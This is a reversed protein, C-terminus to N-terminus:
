LLYFYSGTNEDVAINDLDVRKWSEPNELELDEFLKM